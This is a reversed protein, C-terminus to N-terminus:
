VPVTAERASFLAQYDPEYLDVIRYTGSTEWAGSWRGDITMAKSITQSQIFIRGWFLWRGDINHVLYVRVPDLLFFRAGPKRQFSFIQEKVDFFSIKGQRHRELDLIDAPFGQDVTIQLTDNVEIYSGM